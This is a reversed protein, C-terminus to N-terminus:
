LLLACLAFGYIYEDVAFCRPIGLKNIPIKITPNPVLAGSITTEAIDSVTKFANFLSFPQHIIIYKDVEVATNPEIYIHDPKDKNEVLTTIIRGDPLHDEM